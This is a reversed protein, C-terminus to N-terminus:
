NGNYPLLGDATGLRQLEMSGVSTGGGLGITFGTDIRLPNPITHNGDPMGMFNVVTYSWAAGGGSTLRAAGHFGNASIPQAVRMDNWPGELTGSLWPGVGGAIGAAYYNYFSCVNNQVDWIQFISFDVAAGASANLNMLMRIKFRTNTPPAPPVERPPPVPTPAYPLVVLAVARDREDETPGDFALSEGVADSRIQTAAINRQTLVSAANRVRRQSLALNHADSGTRSAQGQMWCRGRNNQLLPVIQSALFSQHESKISDGDIDFNYLLAKKMGAGSYRQDIEIKGPGMPSLAM